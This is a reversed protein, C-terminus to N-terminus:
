KKHQQEYEQQIIKLMTQTELFATPVTKIPIKQNNKFVDYGNLIGIHHLSKKYWPSEKAKSFHQKNRALIAKGLEEKLNITTLISKNSITGTQRDRYIKKGSTTDLHATDNTVTVKTLTSTPSNNHIM